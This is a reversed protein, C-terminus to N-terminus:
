RTKRILLGNQSMIRQIRKRNVPESVPLGKKEQKRRERQFQKSVRRVGFRPAKLHVARIREILETDHREQAQYRLTSRGIELLECARRESVGREAYLRESRRAAFRIAEREEQIPYSATTGCSWSAGKM